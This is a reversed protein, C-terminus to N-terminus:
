NNSLKNIFDEESWITIGLEKAKDYKSGPAEGVIVVDTKKSVSNTTIGGLSEIKDRADDRTINTLSGTLVFTKGAFNTDEIAKEILCEMNVGYAKLKDIIEINKDDDFYDKICKAITEGIDKISVLEDYSANMFNDLNRYKIALMKATRKGVNKIGLGCLLRELSNNRSNSISDLLNTVSKEGYGELQMLTDKHTDLKYFDSIDNLYGMNFLDEVIEDGLGEIYMADRSVFHILGEVKRSACHENLCFHNADKKVLKFNDM